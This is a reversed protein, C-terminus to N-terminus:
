SSFKRNSKIKAYKEITYKKSETEKNQYQMQQRFLSTHMAHAEM